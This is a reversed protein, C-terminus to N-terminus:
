KLREVCLRFPFVRMARASQVGAEAFLPPWEAPRYSRAISLRGDERVIRHWGMIRALLPYGWYAFGHRHLDNIHWGLAAQGEMFALFAILQDHSMHHAVLSSLIVDWSEGALDAYNGSLYRVQMAPPTAAKATGVSKPNLDIGTLDVKIGRTAAHRAMARLLDGEGFGVDLIRITKGPNRAHVQDLFRLSARHAMTIRNVKALDRLVQDYVAPDLEAADMQEEQLSRKGLM